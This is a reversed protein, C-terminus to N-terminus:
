AAEQHVSSIADMVHEIIQNNKESFRQANDRLEGLMQTDDFLSEIVPALAEKDQVVMVADDERMADFLEQQYQVHPGSLVACGLQAAEIPNHGGGGDNSFSRGIMAVPCARYFLGLEGMTDALYIDCHEGPLPAGDDSRRTVNVGESELMAKIDGGREPHRPVIITLINPLSEKLETHVAVALEEEGAHTSAYVWVPRDGIAKELADLAAVDYLLPAASFKLNGTTQVNSHGLVEFRAKDKETQTLILSFASLINAASKSFRRWMRFSKDSLRANLLVAPIHKEKIASLMNPWLESEMWFVLDPSWHDLFRAVWKPHDLPYFQHFAREPLKQEMMAASTVTGTTVMIHAEPFRALLREIFILASQAEGVSAAHLWILKGNPRTRKTEGQKEVWRETHEKGKKVRASLLSVFFPGLIQSLFKYISYLIM